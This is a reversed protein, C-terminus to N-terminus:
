SCRRLVVDAIADWDRRTRAGSWDGLRRVVYADAAGEGAVYRDELEQFAGALDDDDFHALFVARGADDVEM